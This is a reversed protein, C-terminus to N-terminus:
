LEFDLTFLNGHGDSYYCTDGCFDIFEAEFPLGIVPFLLFFEQRKKVPDIIRVAPASITRSGFGEVEYIKGRHFTGGQIFRHYEVDFYDVLDRETLIVSKVAEHGPEPEGADFAPMAFRFYRTQYALDRMTYAYLENKEADYVFNGYPRIDKLEMSSLWLRDDGAFGVRIIQLLRSSFINGDRVIRYACLTGLRRDQEKAYNNYVNCYLIPFEDAPDFREGGFFVANSHPNMWDVGDLTFRAFPTAEEAPDAAAHLADLLYAFGDGKHNFRFLYNGYIAGDQGAYITSIKTAKM